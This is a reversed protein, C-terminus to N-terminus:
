NKKETSSESQVRRIFARVTTTNGEFKVSIDSASFVPGIYHPGYKYPDGTEPHYNALCGSRPTLVTSICDRGIRWGHTPHRAARRVLDVLCSVRRQSPLHLYRKRIKDIAVNLDPTIAREAGHVILDLKRMPGTNQDRILWQIDFDDNIHRVFRGDEEQNSISVLFFGLPCIGTLVFTIRRAVGLDRLDSFTKAAYERLTDVIDPLRKEIAKTSTLHDVLWLDTKQASPSAGITALGTYSITFRADASDVYIAKTANDAAVRGDGYTLKRDLVQTVVDEALATIILTMTERGVYQSKFLL